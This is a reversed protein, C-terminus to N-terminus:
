NNKDVVSYSHLIYHYKVLQIIKHVVDDLQRKDSLIECHKVSQLYSFDSGIISKYIM